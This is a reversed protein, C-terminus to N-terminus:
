STQIKQRIRYYFYLALSEAGLSLLLIPWFGGLDYLLGMLYSSLFLALGYATNFIGYGRGRKSFPVLDGIASKMITEHSGMVLGWLVMGMIILPLSHSLNLLPLFFTLVPIFVLLLIGGTQTQTREKLWDYAKGVALAALADVGMAMAYILTITSDAMLNQTKLHYGIIAFNAFGLSTFFIFFTYTWFLGQVQDPTRKREQIQSLQPDKQMKQYSAYVLAMLLVFPLLLLRYGTQYSAIDQQGRLSFVLTFILPGLFAGVQDLAEQLGFAMGLGLDQNAVNSLITDKSPNRLAKGLRELLVLVVLFNWEQSFGMLPVVLLFGYGIFIFAWHRHSKDSWYGALLRLGYGIFEGLGFVLGVRTASIGLLSFYQSNVGRAAEYIIDGFMSILGFILVVEMAQSRKKKM